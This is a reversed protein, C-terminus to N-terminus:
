FIAGCLSLTFDEPRLIAALTKVISPKQCIAGIVGYELDLSEPVTAAEERCRRM